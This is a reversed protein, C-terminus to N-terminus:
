IYNLIVKHAWYGLRYLSESRAPRDPFRIRSPALSEAEVWVPGSAWGAKQVFPAPDKGPIFRGLRPAPWGSWRVGFNFFCYLNIEVTEKVDAKM